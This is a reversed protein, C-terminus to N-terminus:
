FVGIERAPVGMVSVNPQVKRLVVSGAGVKAYEGIESSPLIAAHSGLFAGKKLVSFGMIDSHCNITCYDAVKADHGITAAINISVFNGITADCSVVVRPCLISGKGVLVNKAVIATPHILSIFKAGKAELNDVIKEKDRPDSIGLIFLDDAQPTYNEITGLIPIPYNYGELSELNNDLFGVLSYEAGNQILDSVWSFLERGFSGGGVIILRNM